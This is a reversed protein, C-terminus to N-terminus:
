NPFWHGIGIGGHARAHNAQELVQFGHAAEPLLRDPVDGVVPVLAPPGAVDGVVRRAHDGRRTGLRPQPHGFGLNGRRRRHWGVDLAVQSRSRCVRFSLWCEGIVELLRELSARVLRFAQPCNEAVVHVAGPSRPRWCGLDRQLRALQVLIEEVQAQAQLPVGRQDLEDPAVADQAPGGVGGVDGVAGVAARITCGSIM